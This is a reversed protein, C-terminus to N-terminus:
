VDRGCDCEVAERMANPIIKTWEAQTHRRVCSELKLRCRNGSGTDSARQWKKELWSM